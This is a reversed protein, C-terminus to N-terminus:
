TLNFSTEFQWYANKLAIVAIGRAKQNKINTETKFTKRKELDM